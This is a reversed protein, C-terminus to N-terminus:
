TTVVTRSIEATPLPRAEWWLECVHLGNIEVYIVHQTNQANFAYGTLPAFDSLPAGTNSLDYHHWVGADWWLEHIRGSSNTYIVHRTCTADFPYASLVGEGPGGSATAVSLDDWHWNGDWWLEHIHGDVGIYNVHQTGASAFVYGTPASRSAPAGTLTTLNNHKWHGTKWELEHISSDTGLYHVHQTNAGPLAYGVPSQLLVAAPASAASTLDHHHWDDDDWWLEHIHSDSAVYDVHQTDQSDFMYAGPAFGIALPGGAANTLDHHRWRDDKWWLEHIHGGNESEEGVCVVHQTGQTAFVYGAPGIGRNGGSLAPAGSATTLDHHHWGSADWWLEHIHGDGGVYDVHQTGEQEFIYACPGSIAASANVDATLDRFHWGM